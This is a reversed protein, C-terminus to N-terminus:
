AEGHVMSGSGHMHRGWARTMLCRAAQCTHMSLWGLGSLASDAQMGALVKLTM